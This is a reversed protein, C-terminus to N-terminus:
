ERSSLLVWEAMDGSDMAIQEPALAAFDGGAPSSKRFESDVFTSWGGDVDELREWVISPEHLFM